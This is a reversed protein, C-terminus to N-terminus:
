KLDHLLEAAESHSLIGKRELIKLLRAAFRANPNIELSVAPAATRFAIEENPSGDGLWSELAARQGGTIQEFILGMGSGMHCSTVKAQCEFSQGNKNLQMRVPAGVPLPNLTDIYCGQLSLDSTRAILRAGARLDILEAHCIFAQRQADRRELAATEETVFQTLKESMTSVMTTVQKAHTTRALTLMDM